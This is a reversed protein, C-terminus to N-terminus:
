THSLLSFIQDQSKRMLGLNFEELSVGKQNLESAMKKLDELYTHVEFSNVQQNLFRETGEYMTILLSHHQEQSLYPQLSQSETEFEIRLKQIENLSMKTSPNRLSTAQSNKGISLKTFTSHIDM